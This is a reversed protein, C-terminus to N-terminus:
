SGTLTRKIKGLARRPLSAGSPTPGPRECRVGRLPADLGICGNREIRDSTTGSVKKWAPAGGADSRVHMDLTRSTYHAATSYHVVFSKRTSAPNTVARGGHLLGAHWIFTDGRACTFEQVELGLDALQSRFHDRWGARVHQPVDQPMAVSDDDFEYWPLRHSGPV